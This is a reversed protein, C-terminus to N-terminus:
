QSKNLKCENVISLASIQGLIQKVKITQTYYAYANQM